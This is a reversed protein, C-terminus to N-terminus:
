QAEGKPKRQMRRMYAELIAEDAPSTATDTDDLPEPELLRAMLTLVLNAARADGQIGRATLSKLLARQKTIKRASGSETIQIVEAMEAMLDTRLNPTGKKRGTPNGSQGKKWRTSKPPRKYGVEESM